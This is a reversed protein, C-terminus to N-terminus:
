RCFPSVLVSLRYDVVLVTVFPIHRLVPSVDSPLFKHLTEPITEDSTTIDSVTLRIQM